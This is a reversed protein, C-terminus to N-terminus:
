GGIQLRKERPGIERGFVMAASRTETGHERPESLGPLSPPGVHALLGRTVYVFGGPLAFANVAPADLVTFSWPLHPRHSAAAIREGIGAVYRQLEDDDYVGMERRIEADGRRGIEIEEAESILSVERRGSVPNSACATLTLAGTLACGAALVRLRMGSSLMSRPM